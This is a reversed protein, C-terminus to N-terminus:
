SVVKKKFQSPTVGFEKRFSKTFHSQSQIGVKDMVQIINLDTSSLIQAAKKLRINRILTGISESTLEKVSTYLKTKSIGLLRSLKDVDFDVDEINEDILNLPLKAKYKGYLDLDDESINLKKAINKIHTIKNAQAIEIDSLHAM